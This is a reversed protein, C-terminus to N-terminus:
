SNILNDQISKNMNKERNHSGIEISAVALAMVFLAERSLFTTTIFNTVIMMLITTAGAIALLRDIERTGRRSFREGKILFILLFLAFCATLPIGMKYTLFMYGNHVYVTRVTTLGIPDYYTYKKAFGSGGLPYKNIQDMNAKYENLRLQISVDKTGETSSAMRREIIKFILDVNDKFIVTAAFTLVITISGAYILLLKKKKWPLYILLLITNVLTMIWFARSFSVILAAFTLVTFALLLIHKLTGKQHLVFLIGYITAATYLPQNMRISSGLQYAYRLDTFAVKYYQYFQVFDLGVTVLCMILLLRKFDKTDAFYERIPFYYLIILFPSFERIWDIIAVGNTIAIVVNFLCMIMMFLILWDAYGRVLKRRRIAISDFIWLLISGFYYLGMLVDIASLGEDMGRFFYVTSLFVSYIWLRPYRTIIFIFAIAFLGALTYIGDNYFSSIYTIASFLLLLIAGLFYSIPRNLEMIGTISNQQM